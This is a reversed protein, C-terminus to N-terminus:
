TAVFLDGTAPSIPKANDLGSSISGANGGNVVLSDTIGYGSLTTPKGTTIKSWDLNPIDTALLNAGATVRGKVDVTVKPYTGATVGTTALTPNPYTGTLDGGASGTPTRSDSLRSDNGLVVETAAANGVAPVNKVASTGLGLNTRSTAVNGVDSLNNSPNLPTFGLASQKGNFTNWDASSLYGNTSTTAQSISVVPTSTGTAVSIPATGTVSTVTGGANSDNAPAWNTGNFKLVQGSAPTTSFDLAIGKIKDVSTAGQTGSVDGALSGTFNTASSATTASGVSLSSQNSCQWGSAVNWTLLQGSSCTLATLSAGTTSDTAVLRNVGPNVFLKSTSVAGDSIKTNTISNDVLGPNPYTGNLVGGAAGTPTRADSFRPDNGAAVTNAITGVNVTLTPTSTNNNVTLYSNSSSVNTVTGGSGTASISISGNGNTITVGTGATLTAKSLGGTVTNGILLDGDTYTYQGTGGQAVALIGSTIKAASLNPIQSVQFNTLQSGDVSPLKALADLKVIQNANTGSNLTLVPTSTANVVGIDGNASSVNTVTGSASNDTGPAWNTGNFKLVQGNAPAVSFDLPVGKIKDVSTAGQSGSVDGALSGSFNTASGAITASGVALSNQNSCQWGSAINWTLLQGNSCTLASLSSGTTGDTAVLRNVGPNAFLKSTSIAGDSIKSNIISNDALGPNPYTGNLVGGAAGTPIRADSFRPDDGAAVTNATTGINVTLTPTSTNNIVTLYPNSSTVNTVTGGSAGAVPACSLSTGNYSLFTGAACTPLGAKLLFDSAVNTGLKEAALAYGAFPVSRITNDPTILKWGVGDYFSVRLKRVDGSTANYTRGSGNSCSYSGNTFSCSGCNFTGSNNFVDLVTATGGLPYLITGQGIPVDFVGGSNNMNYGNIQEQYIVCTGAPDTIQFIFSVNSYELPTGDSKLIRGQYTLSAPSAFTQLSFFAFSISVLLIAKYVSRFTWKLTNAVAKM